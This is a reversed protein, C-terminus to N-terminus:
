QGRCEWEDEANDLKPITSSNFQTEAEPLREVQVVCCDVEDWDSEPEAGDGRKMPQMQTKTVKLTKFNGNLMNM